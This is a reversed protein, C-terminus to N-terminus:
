GDFVVGEEDIRRRLAEPARSYDVIDIELLTPATEQMENVFDAWAADGSDHVVAIDVDSDPRADGRARSGFLVIRRVSLSRRAAQAVYGIAERDIAVTM